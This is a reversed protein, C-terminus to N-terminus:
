AQGILQRKLEQFEGDTLVGNRRLADLKRIEDAVSAPSYSGGAVRGPAQVDPGHLHGGVYRNGVRKLPPSCRCHQEQYHKLAKQYSEETAFPPPRYPRFPGMGTPRGHRFPPPFGPTGHAKGGCVECSPAGEDRM